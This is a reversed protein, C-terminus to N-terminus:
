REAEMGAAGVNSGNSLVLAYESVVKNMFVDSRFPGSHGDPRAVPAILRDVDAGGPITRTYESRFNRGCASYMSVILTWNGDDHLMRQRVEIQRDRMKSLIRGFSDIGLEVGDLTEVVHGQHLLVGVKGARDGTETAEDTLTFADKDWVVTGNADKKSEKGYIRQAEGLSAGPVVQPVVL